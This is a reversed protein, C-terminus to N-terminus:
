SATEEPNEAEADFEALFVRYSEPEMQYLV